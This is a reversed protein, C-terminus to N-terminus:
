RMQSLWALARRQDNSARRRRSSRPWSTMSYAGPRLARDAKVETELMLPRAVSMELLKSPIRSRLLWHQGPTSEVVFEPPPLLLLLPPPRPRPPPRPLVHRLSQRNRHHTRRSRDGEDNSGGSKRPTRELSSPSAGRQRRRGNRCCMTERATAPMWEEPRPPNEGVQGGLRRQLSREDLLGIVSEAGAVIGARKLDESSEVRLQGVVKLHEIVKPQGQICQASEMGTAPADAEVAGSM